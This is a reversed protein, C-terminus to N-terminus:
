FLYDELSEFVDRAAHVYNGLGDIIGSHDNSNIENARKIREVARGWDRSHLNRGTLENLARATGSKIRHDGVQLPPLSPRQAAGVTNPGFPSTSTPRNPAGPAAGALVIAVNM